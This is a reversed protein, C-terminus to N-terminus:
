VLHDVHRLRTIKLRGSFAVFHPSRGHATCRPSRSSRPSGATDYVARTLWSSAFLYNYCHGPRLRGPGM